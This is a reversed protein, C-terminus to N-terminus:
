AGAAFYCIFYADQVQWIPLIITLYIDLYITVLIFSCSIPLSQSQKSFFDFYFFVCGFVGLM